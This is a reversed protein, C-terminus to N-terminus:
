GLRENYLPINSDEGVVVRWNRISKLLSPSLVNAGTTDASAGRADAPYRVVKSGLVFVSTSDAMVTTPLPLVGNSWTDAIDGRVTKKSAGRSVNAALGCYTPGFMEGSAEASKPAVIPHNPIKGM